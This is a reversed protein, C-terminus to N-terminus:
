FSLLPLLDTPQQTGAEALCPAKCTLLQAERTQRRWGCGLDRMRVLWTGVTHRTGGEENALEPEQRLSSCVASNTGALAVQSSSCPATGSPRLATWQGLLSCPLAAGLMEATQTSHVLCATPHSSVSLEALWKQVRIHGQATKDIKEAILHVSLSIGLLRRKSACLQPITTTLQFPQGTHNLASTQSGRTHRASKHRSPCTERM